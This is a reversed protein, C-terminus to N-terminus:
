RKEKLCPLLRFLRGIRYGEKAYRLVRETADFDLVPATADAAGAHLADYFADYEASGPGVFPEPEAHRFLSPERFLKAM